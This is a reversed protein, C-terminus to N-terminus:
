LLPIDCHWDVPDTLCAATLDIAWVYQKEYLEPFTKRHEAYEPLQEPGVPLHDGAPVFGQEGASYSTYYHVGNPATFEYYGDKTITGYGEEKGPYSKGVEEVQWTLWPDPLRCIYDSASVISLFVLSWAFM